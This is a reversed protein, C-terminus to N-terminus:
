PLQERGRGRRANIGVALLGLVAALVRRDLSEPLSAELGGRGPLPRPTRAGESGLCDDGDGRQGGDPPGDRSRGSVQWRARSPTM